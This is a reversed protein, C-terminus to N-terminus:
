NPALFPQTTTPTTQVHNHSIGSRVQFKNGPSAMKPGGPGNNNNYVSSIPQQQKDVPTGPSTSGTRTVVPQGMARSRQVVPDSSREYNIEPHYTAEQLTSRDKLAM